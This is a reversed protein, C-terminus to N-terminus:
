CSDADEEGNLAVLSVEGEEGSPSIEDDAKRKNAGGSMGVINIASGMFERADMVVERRCSERQNRKSHPLTYCN